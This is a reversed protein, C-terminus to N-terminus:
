LSAEFDVSLPDQGRGQKFKSFHEPGSYNYLVVIAEIGMVALGGAEGTASSIPDFLRSMSPWFVALWWFIRLFLFSLFKQFVQM